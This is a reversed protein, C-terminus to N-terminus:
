LLTAFWSRLLLKGEAWDGLGSDANIHGCAGVVVCLSGWDQALEEIRSLEGYPDNTSAVVLSPFPLKQRPIPRFAKLLHAHPNSSEVDAPAVLFAGRVPRQHGLAWHALAVTALSHAVLVPPEDCQAISNEIKRVWNMPNPDFWDDQEVRRIEPFQQEWITQWHTPGSSSLGPLTLVPCSLM